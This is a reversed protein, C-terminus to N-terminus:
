WDVCSDRRQLFSAGWAGSGYFDMCVKEDAGVSMSESSRGTETWLIVWGSNKHEAGQFRVLGLARARRVQCQLGSALDM